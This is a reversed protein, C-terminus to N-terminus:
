LNINNKSRYEDLLIKAKFIDKSSGIYKKRGNISIKSVYRNLSKDYEVWGKSKKVRNNCNDKNTILRLNSLKNNLRDHDIHDVVLKMGCPKHNLFTIAMLKHIEFVNQIGKRSLSVRLYGDKSKSTALIKEKNYKLSKVIGSNNICYDEYGPIKYFKHDM